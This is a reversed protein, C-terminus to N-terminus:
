NNRDFFEVGKYRSAPVEPQRSPNSLLGNPRQQVQAPTPPVGAQSARPPLQQQTVAAPAPAYQKSQPAEYSHQPAQPARRVLYLYGDGGDVYYYSSSQSRAQSYSPAYYPQEYSQYGYSECCNSPQPQCERWEGSDCSSWGGGYEVPTWGSSWGGGSFGRGGGHRGGAFTDNAYMVGALVLLSLVLKM